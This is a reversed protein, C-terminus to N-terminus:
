NGVSLIPHPRQSMLNCKASLHAHYNFVLKLSCIARVLSTYTRWIHGKSRTKAAGHYIFMCTLSSVAIGARKPSEVGASSQYFCAASACDVLQRWKLHLPAFSATCEGNVAQFCHKMWQERRFLSFGCDPLQLLKMSTSLELAKSLPLVHGFVRHLQGRCSFKHM